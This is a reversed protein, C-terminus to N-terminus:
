SDALMIYVYAQRSGKHTTSPQHQLPRRLAYCVALSEGAQLAEWYHGFDSSNFSYWVSREQTLREFLKM